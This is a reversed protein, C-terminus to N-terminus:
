HVIYGGGLLIDDEYMVVAQGPTVARVPREFELEMVNGDYSKVIANAGRDAYRIKAFVEQGVKFEEYAMSNVNTCRLETTMLDENSGLVVNRTVPDISTVYRPEGFAIGLGKRQGITYHSIGKHEGLINGEVDVFNGTQESYGRERVMFGQYDGDPAFCIDQSDPKDANILGLEDAMERIESKEFDGVPMLTHKVMDQTLSYLVYTQDKAASKAKKFTYRGNPMEIVNAFHGTAIYDFGMNYAENLMADWKVYRNCQICPNPTYGRKYENVFYDLVKDSFVEKFHLVKHPIKLKNCVMKADYIGDIGCCSNESDFMHLTCGVVEYGQKILLYAAVSSDVGGSMGIMVKKGM